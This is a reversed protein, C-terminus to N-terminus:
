PRGTKTTDFPRIRMGSSGSTSITTTDPWKSAASAQIASRTVSAGTEQRDKRLQFNASTIRPGPAQWLTGGPVHRLVMEDDAIDDPLLDRHGSVAVVFPVAGIVVGALKWTLKKATERWDVACGFVVSFFPRRGRTDPERM